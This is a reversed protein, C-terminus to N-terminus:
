LSGAIHAGVRKTLDTAWAANDKPSAEYLGRRVRMLEQDAGRSHKHVCDKITTYPVQRGLLEESAQHVERLRIPVASLTLIQLVAAKVDGARPPLVPKPVRKGRRALLKDLLLGLEQYNASRNLLAGNLEM